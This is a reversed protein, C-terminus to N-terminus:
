SKSKIINICQNLLEAIQFNKSEPRFRVFKCGLKEELFMQRKLDQSVRYKHSNEEDCEIALKFDLIYLDIKYICCQFQTICNLGHFVKSLFEILNAEVSVKYTEVPQINLTYAYQKILYSRTSCIMRKIGLMTLYIMNQNGGATKCNKLLKEDKTYNVLSTRVNKIKLNSGFDKANVFISNNEILYRIKNKKCLDQFATFESM